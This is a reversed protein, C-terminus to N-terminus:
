PNGAIHNRQRDLELYNNLGLNYLIHTSLKSLAHAVFNSSINAWYYLLIGLDSDAFRSHFYQTTVCRIRHDGKDQLQLNRGYLLKALTVEAAYPM